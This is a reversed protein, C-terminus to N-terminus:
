LTSMGVTVKYGRSVGKFLLRPVSKQAILFCRGDITNTTSVLVNFLCLLFSYFKERISISFCLSDDLTCYALM